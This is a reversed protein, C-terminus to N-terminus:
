SEDNYSNFVKHFGCSFVQIPSLFEFNPLTPLLITNPLQSFIPSIFVWIYAINLEWRISRISNHFHLNSLAVLIFCFVGSATSGAEEKKNKTIRFQKKTMIYHPLARSFAVRISKETIKTSNLSISKRKREKKQYRHSDIDGRNEM